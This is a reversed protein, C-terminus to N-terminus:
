YIANALVSAIVGSTIGILLADNGSQVWRYGRPADHLRYHRPSSIVRYNRAYRYDFREGRRWNRYQVQNRKDYRNFQGRNDHGRNDWRQEHRGRDNHGFPQAMVPGAVVSAAVAALLFKKM